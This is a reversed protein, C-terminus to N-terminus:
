TLRMLTCCLALALCTQVQYIREKTAADSAVAQLIGRSSGGPCHVTPGCLAPTVLLLSAVVLLLPHLSGCSLIGGPLSKWGSAMSVGDIAASSEILPM